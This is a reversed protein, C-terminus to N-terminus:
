STSDNVPIRRVFVRVLIGEMFAAITRRGHMNALRLHRRMLDIAEKPNTVAAKDTAAMLSAFACNVKALSEDAL